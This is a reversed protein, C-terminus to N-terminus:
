TQTDIAQGASGYKEYKDRLTRGEPPPPINSLIHTKKHRKINRYNKKGHFTEGEPFFEALYQRLPTWTKFHLAWYKQGM